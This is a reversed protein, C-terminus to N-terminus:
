RTFKKTKKHTLERELLKIVKDKELLLDTLNGLEKKLYGLELKYESCDEKKEEKYIPMDKKLMEGNGTLLWIPNLDPYTAIIKAIFVDSVSSKLKDTDLFGRKISTEKFFISRTIGKFELYKVIRQKTTAFNM